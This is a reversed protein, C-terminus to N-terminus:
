SLPKDLDIVLDEGGPKVERIIVTSSAEGFRGGLTDDERDLLKRDKVAKAKAADFADRKLKQTILVRYKGPPIGAGDAGALVFTGNTQDVQAWYEEGVRAQSSPETRVLTVRVSQDSPAAYPGGGKILKGSARVTEGSGCGSLAALPVLWLVLAFDRRRM